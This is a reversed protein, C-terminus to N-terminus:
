GHLSTKTAIAVKSKLYVVVASYIGCFAATYLLDGAMTNRLFPLGAVYSAWLGDLGPGYIKSFKWVAANTILFFIISSTLAVAGVSWWRTRRRIAMGLLASIGFSLYISITISALDFGIIADSILMLCLPIIFAWRRPLFLASFIAMASVPAFNPPLDIIGADRVVRLTAGVAILFIALLFAHQQARSSTM